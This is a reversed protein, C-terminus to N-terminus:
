HGIGHREEKSEQRFVSVVPLRLSGGPRNGISPQRRISTIVKSLNDVNHLDNNDAKPFDIVTLFGSPPDKLREDSVRPPANTPRATPRPTPNPSPKGTPKSTQPFLNFTRGRTPFPTPKPIPNFTPQPTRNRKRQTPKSTPNPMTPTESPSYTPEKTSGDSPLHTPAMTPENSPPTPSPFAFDEPPEFNCWDDYGFTECLCRATETVDGAYYAQCYRMPLEVCFDSEKGRIEKGNYVSCLCADYANPEMEAAADYYTACYYKNVNHCYEVDTYIFSQADPLQYDYYKCVCLDWASPYRITSNYNYILKKEYTCLDYVEGSPPFQLQRHMTAEDICHWEQIDLHEIAGDQGTSTITDMFASKQCRQNSKPCALVGLDPYCPTRQRESQRQMSTSNASWSSNTLVEVRNTNSNSNQRGNSKSHYENAHRYRHYEDKEEHQYAYQQNTHDEVPNGEIQGRGESETIFTSTSSVVVTATAAACLLFHKVASSSLKM